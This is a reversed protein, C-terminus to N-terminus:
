FSWHRLRQDTLPFKSLVVNEIALQADDPNTDDPELRSPRQTDLSVLHIFLLLCRNRLVFARLFM